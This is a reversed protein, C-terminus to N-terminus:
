DPAIQTGVVKIGIREPGEPDIDALATLARTDYDDYQMKLSNNVAEQAVAAQEVLDYYAAFHEADGQLTCGEACNYTVLGEEDEIRQHVTFFLNAQAVLDNYVAVLNEYVALAKDYYDPDRDNDVEGVYHSTNWWWNITIQAYDISGAAFEGTAVKFYGEEDTQIDKLAFWEDYPALIDASASESEVSFILPPYDSGATNGNVEVLLVDVNMFVDYEIAVDTEGNSIIFSNEGYAQPELPQHDFVDYTFGQNQLNDAAAGVRFDWKAVLAPDSGSYATSFQGLTPSLVSISALAIILLPILIRFLKM